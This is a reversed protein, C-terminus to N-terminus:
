RALVVYGSSVRVTNDTLIYLYVGPKQERGRDDRGDWQVANGSINSLTTLLVGTFSFIKLEPDTLVLKSFDFVARDNYGDENPTFPNPRVLLEARSVQLRLVASNNSEDTEAIQNERDVEFIIEHTGVRDFTAAYSFRIDQGAGLGVIVTDAAIVGDHFFTLRFVGNAAVVESRAVGTIVRTQRLAIFTNDISLSRVVLDPQADQVTIRVIATDSLAPQGFAEKVIFTIDYTGRSGVPPTWSFTATRNGNDIFVAGAPLNLTSFALTSDEPDTASINFTLLQAEPISQDAIPDFVPPDNVPIVRVYVQMTDAFLGDSAIVMFTTDQDGERPTGEVVTNEPANSAPSLWAPLDRFTFRPITNDSDTATATYQFFIDEIATVTDASTIHPPFQNPGGLLIVPVAPSLSDSSFITLTDLYAIFAAPAFSITLVESAYPAVTLDAASASFVADTFDLRNIKLEGNGQNIIQLPLTATQPPLVNGFDLTDPIVSIFAQIGEGRLGVVLDQQVGFATARITLSDLYVLTDTPSFTVALNFVDGPGVVAQSDSVTFVPLTTSIAEVQITENTPNILTYSQTSDRGVFVQGFDIRQPPLTFRIGGSQGGKNLMITVTNTTLNTVAMDIDGDRDFDAGAVSSPISGTDYVDVDRASFSNNFENRLIHINDSLLNPVALDLDHDKGFGSSFASADVTDFDAVLVDSPSEGVLIEQAIVFGGDRSRNELLTVSNNAPHIIVLDLLGDGYEGESRRIFDNSKIITPFEPVQIDGSQLFQAAGNNRYVLITNDGSNTVVIDVDGDNDFDGSTLGYPSAGIPYVQPSEVFTGAGQNLFIQLRNIGLIVAAIDMLGDNNLDRAEIRTPHEATPIVQLQSFAGAGANRLIIITDDDFNSVALDLLGDNDFDGGTIANAGAGVAVSDQQVFSRGPIFFNNILISVTNSTNNVVALDPFLDNNFDGAYIATPHVDTAALPVDIRDVFVGTGFEVAITFSWQFAPALPQSASNRVGSTLTVSIIEGEKFFANPIFSGTRTAPDYTINGDYRGSQDGHVLWTDANLTAPDIAESFVVTLAAMFPANIEHQRPIVSVVQPQALGSAAMAWLLFFLSFM